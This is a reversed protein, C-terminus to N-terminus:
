KLNLIVGGPSQLSEFKLKKQHIEEHCKKCLVIINYAANKPIHDIFGNEDADAQHRIHHSELNIRTGCVGCMDVYIDGNYKSKKTNVVHIPEGLLEKRINNANKIFEPDMDLSKAVELGYISEGPGDKLKRNYLLRQSLPDYTTELHCIKLTKSDVFDKIQRKTPIEHLHTSFLFASKKQILYDVSSITLAMGSLSETGRCLEDGLVLTRSDTNRLITRLEIMEVVFSSHGKLMDDQGSLRTILRTFPVFTIKGATWMGAQAMIIALGISTTFVTKGTSNCGYLLIGHNNVNLSIDNPIYDTIIIREVIPHRLDKATFHSVDNSTKDYDLVTPKYYNYKLSVITNSLSIDLQIIFNIISSLDYDKNLHSIYRQYFKYLAPSMNNRSTLITNCLYDIIDSRVAYKKNKGELRINGCLNTDIYNMQSRLKSARSDTLYIGLDNMNIIEEDEDDEISKGKKVKKSVSNITVDVGVLNSIYECIKDLVITANIISNQYNNCEIDKGPMLPSNRCMIKSNEINCEQLIELNFTEHVDQIFKNFAILEPNKPFIYYLDTPKKDPTILLPISLNILEIISRCSDLLNCIEKPSISEKTFKFNLKELDYLQKLISISSKRYVDSARLQEIINYRTRLIKTDVLPALILERLHRKGMPTNTEDIVSLLTDFKKKKNVRYNLRQINSQVLHLQIIANYTLNLHKDEDSIITPRKIKHFLDEDHANCYEILFVYSHVGYSMREMGLETFIDMISGRTLYVRLQENMVMENSTFSFIRSLVQHQYKPLMLEKNFTSKIALIPYSDLELFETIYREFIDKDVKRTTYNIYIQLEKPKDGSLIRYLENIVYKSDTFNHHIEGVETKGTIIDISAVGAFLAVNEIKAKYDMCEIFVVYIKNCSRVDNKHPIVNSILPSSINALERKTKDTKSQDYRVITYNNTLLLSHYKEYAGCPFGIMYPNKYTGANDRNSSDRLTLRIGLLESIDFALSDENGSYMEYFAGIQMFLLTRDGYKEVYSKQLKFYEELLAM